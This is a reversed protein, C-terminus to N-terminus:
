KLFRYGKRSPEVNVTFSVDAPATITYTKDEDFLGGNGELTINSEPVWVPYLTMRNAPVSDNNMDDIKYEPTGADKNALWGM